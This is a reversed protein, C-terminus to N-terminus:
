RVRLNFLEAGTGHNEVLWSGTQDATFSLEAEKGPEIDLYEDYGHVHVEQATDSTMILTFTEGEAVDVNPEPREAPDGDVLELRVTVGDEETPSEIATPEASVQESASATPAAQEPPAQIAPEDDDGCAATALLLAAALTAAAMSRPYQRRANM